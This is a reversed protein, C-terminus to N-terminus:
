KKFKHLIIYAINKKSLLYINNIIILDKCLVFLSGCFVFAGYILLVGIFIGFGVSGLLIDSRIVYNSRCEEAKLSGFFVGVQDM